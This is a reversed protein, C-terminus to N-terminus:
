LKFNFFLSGGYYPQIPTTFGPYFSVGGSADVGVSLGPQILYEVGVTGQAGVLFSSYFGFGVHAGVGYFLNLPLNDGLKIRGLMLDGQVLVNVFYSEIAVRFGSGTEGPDTTNYQVGVPYGLRVGFSDALASTNLLAFMAVLMGLKKKM